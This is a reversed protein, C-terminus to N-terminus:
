DLFDLVVRALEDPRELAPLHAADEIVVERADPIEAVFRAAARAVDPWDLAGRVILTPAVIRAPEIKVRRLSADVGAQLEYARRQMARVRDRLESPVEDPERQPGDVWARVMLEAAEDFRGADFLEDEQAGIARVEESWGFPNASVLVLKTVREPAALAAELAARGGFSTGVFAADGTFSSLVSDALSHEGRRLPTSGYGPLDPAVVSHRQGLLPRVADWEGSDTVGSHILVIQVLPIMV